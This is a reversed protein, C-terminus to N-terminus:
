LLLHIHPLLFFFRQTGNLDIFLAKFGVSDCCLVDLGLEAFGLLLFFCDIV